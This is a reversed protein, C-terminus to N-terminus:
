HTIFFVRYMITSAVRCRVEEGECLQGSAAWSMPKSFLSPGDADLGDDPYRTRQEPMYRESVPCGERRTRVYSLAIRFQLLLDVPAQVTM